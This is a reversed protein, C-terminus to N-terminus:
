KRKAIPIDYNKLIDLFRKIGCYHRIDVFIRNGNPKVVDIGRGKSSAHLAIESIANRPIFQTLRAGRRNRKGSPITIGDNSIRVVLRNRLILMGVASNIWLLGIVAIVIFPILAIHGGIALAAVVGVGVLLIGVILMEFFFSWRLKLVTEDM